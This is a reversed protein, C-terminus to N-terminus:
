AQWEMEIQPIIAEPIRNERIVKELIREEM